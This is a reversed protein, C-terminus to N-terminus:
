PGARTATGWLECRASGEIVAYRFQVSVTQTADRFVFSGVGVDGGGTGVARSFVDSPSSGVAFDGTEVTPPAGATVVQTGMAGNANTTQARIKMSQVPGPDRTCTMFLQFGGLEPLDVGSTGGIEHLSKDFTAVNSSRFFASPALGGLQSSNAATAASPVQGLTSEDINAGSVVNPKITPDPYNGQLDGGAPGTAPGPPGIDGKGGPQGPAGRKGVQNWAIKTQGKKCKSKGNGLVTLQGKKSVCGRITGDKQVFSTVAAVAGGGLVIFLCLTSIVNAYTLRPRLRNLV